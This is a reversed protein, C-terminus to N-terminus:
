KDIYHGFIWIKVTFKCNPYNSCGLFEGYQGKKFEIPAGCEPCITPFTTEPHRCEKINERRIYGFFTIERDTEEDMIKCFCENIFIRYQQNDSINLFDLYEPITLGLVTAHHRKTSYYCGEFTNKLESGIVYREEYGHYVPKKDLSSKEM